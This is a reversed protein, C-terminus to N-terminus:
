LKSEAPNGVSSGNASYIACVHRPAVTRNRKWHSVRFRGTPTIGLITGASHAWHKKRGYDIMEGLTAEPAAYGFRSVLRDLDVPSPPASLPPTADQTSNM